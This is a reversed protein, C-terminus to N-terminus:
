IQFIINLSVHINEDLENLIDIINENSTMLTFHVFKIGPYDHAKVGRDAREQLEEEQQPPPPRGDDDLNRFRRTQDGRTCCTFCSM